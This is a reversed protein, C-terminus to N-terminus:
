AKAMSRGQVENGCLPSRAKEKTKLPQTHGAYQFLHPRRACQAGVAQGGGGGQPAKEPRQLSRDGSWTRGVIGAQSLLSDTVLGRGSFPPLSRPGASVRGHGTPVRQARVWPCHGTTVSAVDLVDPAGHSHSVNEAFLCFGLFDM